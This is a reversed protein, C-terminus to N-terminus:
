LKTFNKLRHFHAQLPSDSIVHINNKIFLEAIVQHSGPPTMIAIVEIGDKRKKEKDCLQKFDKYCRNKNIGISVGFSKNVKFNRSFVGAVIKYKDDFRSAIRHVHGIWSGPGGGIIGLRLKKM